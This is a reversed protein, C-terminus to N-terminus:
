MRCSFYRLIDLMFLSFFIVRRKKFISQFRKWWNLVLIQTLTVINLSNPISTPKLLNKNQHSM